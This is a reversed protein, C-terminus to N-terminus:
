KKQFKIFGLLGWGFWLIFYLSMMVPLAEFMKNFYNSGEKKTILVTLITLIINLFFIFFRSYKYQNFLCYSSLPYAVLSIISFYFGTVWGHGAGAIIFGLCVNVLGLLISLLYKQM